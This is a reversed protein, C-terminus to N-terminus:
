EDFNLRRCVKKRPPEESFYSFSAIVQHAMLQACNDDGDNYEVVINNCKPWYKEDPKKFQEDNYYDIADFM